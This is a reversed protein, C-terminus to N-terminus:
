DRGEVSPVFLKIAELPTGLIRMPVNLLEMGVDAPSLYTVDPRELAGNVRVPIGVLSGGVLAGILPIRKIVQHTALAVSILGKLDIQKGELDVSGQGSVTFPSSQIIVEDTFIREGDLRGKAALLRYPFTQKNLDPFIVAFDGTANLYDFTADLGAARVFEGDRANFEFSGKLASWLRERDGSGAVRGTLSYIGKIESQQRTLCITTPELQEDTASLALDLGINKEIFDIRGKADIGCVVGRAIETRIASPSIAAMAELSSVNFGDIMFRDTKLRVIGEVRPVSIIEGSGKAGQKSEAGFSNQLEDWNLQDGTVDMDVRLLQETGTVTGSLALRSGGWVLDASRVRVEDGSAEISFKELVAKQAGVPFVLHSGDLRGSASVTMPRTLVASLVIDGRLSSGKLPSSAFVKDVTEHTLEGGFSLDLNNQALQLSLRAHRSGDEVSLNRLALAQPQKTVDLLLSPGGAVTVKGRFSVDGGARWALREATVNLPARVALEDPFGVYEGLWRTM